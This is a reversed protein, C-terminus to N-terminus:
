KLSRAFPSPSLEQSLSRIKEVAEDLIGLVQDVQDTAQPHDMRLLQLRLGAAVLLPAVDDHMIKGATQLKSSKKTSSEKRPEKKRLQKKPAPKAKKLAPKAPGARKKV